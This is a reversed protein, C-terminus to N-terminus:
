AIAAPAATRWTCSGVSRTTNIEVLQKYLDHFAAEDTSPVASGSGTGLGYLGIILMNCVARLSM